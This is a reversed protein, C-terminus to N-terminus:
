RMFCNMDIAKSNAAREENGWHKEGKFGSSFHVMSLKLYLKIFILKLNYSLFEDLRKTEQFVSIDSDVQTVLLCLCIFNLGIIALCDSFSLLKSIRFFSASTFISVKVENKWPSRQM